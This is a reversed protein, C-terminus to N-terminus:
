FCSPAELNQVVKKKSLNRPNAIPRIPYSKSEFGSIKAKTNQFFFEGIRPNTERLYVGESDNLSRCSHLVIKSKDHYMESVLSEYTYLSSTPVDNTSYQQGNKTQYFGYALNGSHYNLYLKEVKWGPCPPRTLIKFLYYGNSSYHTKMRKPVLKGSPTKYQISMAIGVSDHINVIREEIDFFHGDFENIGKAISAWKKLESFDQPLKEDRCFDVNDKKYNSRNIKKCESELDHSPILSIIRQTLQSFYGFELNYDYIHFEHPSRENGWFQQEHYNYSSTSIKLPFVSQDLSSAVYNDAVKHNFRYEVMFEREPHMSAREAEQSISEFFSDSSCDLKEQLYFKQRCNRGLQFSSDEKSLLKISLHPALLRVPIHKCVVSIDAYSDSISIGCVLLLFIFNLFM